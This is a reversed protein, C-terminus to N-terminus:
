ESRRGTIVESLNHRHFARKRLVASKGSQPTDYGNHAAGYGAPARFVTQNDEFRYAAQAKLNRKKQRSGPLSL